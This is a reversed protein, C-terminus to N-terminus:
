AVPPPRVEAATQALVWQEAVVQVAQALVAAVQV